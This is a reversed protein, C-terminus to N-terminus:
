SWFSKLIVEYIRLFNFQLWFSTLIYDRYWKILSLYHSIKSQMNVEFHSWLNKHLLFTTLIFDFHVWLFQSTSTYDNQLLKATSLFDFHLRKTTRWNNEGQLGQSCFSKLRRGGNLSKMFFIFSFHLRFATMFLDIILQKQVENQSCMFNCIKLTVSSCFSQREVAKQSGLYYRKSKRKVEVSTLIKSTVSSCLLQKRVAKRSWLYYRKFKKKVVVSNLYKWLILVVFYSSM